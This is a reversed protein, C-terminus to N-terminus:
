KMFLSIWQFHGVECEIFVRLLKIFATPRCASTKFYQGIYWQNSSNGRGATRRIDLCTSTSCVQRGPPFGYCLGPSDSFGNRTESAELESFLCLCYLVKQEVNEEGRKSHVLCVFLCIFKGIRSSLLSVSPCCCSAWQNGPFSTSEAMREVVWSEPVSLGWMAMELSIQPPLLVGHYDHSYSWRLLHVM